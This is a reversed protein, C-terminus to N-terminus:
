GIVHVQSGYSTLSMAGVISSPKGDVYYMADDSVAVEPGIGMFLAIGGSVVLNDDEDTDGGMLKLAYTMQNIDGIWGM